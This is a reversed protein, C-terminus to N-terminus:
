NEKPTAIMYMTGSLDTNREYPVIVGDSNLSNLIVECRKVQGIAALGLAIGSANLPHGWERMVDLVAEKEASTVPQHKKNASPM